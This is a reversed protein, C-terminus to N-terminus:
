TGEFRKNNCFGCSTVDWFVGNKVSGLIEMSITHITINYIFNIVFQSCFTYCEYYLFSHIFIETLFGSLIFINYCLYHFILYNYNYLIGDELINCRTAKTLVSTESSRLMQMMLTVLIPSNTVVNATLPSRSM